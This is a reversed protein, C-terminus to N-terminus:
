GKKGKGTMHAYMKRPAIVPAASLPGQEEPICKGEQLDKAFRIFDWVILYYEIFGM